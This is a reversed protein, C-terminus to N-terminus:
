KILLLNILWKRRRLRLHIENVYDNVYVYVYIPHLGFASVNVKGYHTFSIWKRKSIFSYILLHTILVHYQNFSYILDM